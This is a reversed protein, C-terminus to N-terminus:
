QGTSIWELVNDLFKQTKKIVGYGAHVCPDLTTALITGKVNKSDIYIIDGYPRYRLLVEANKPARFLGHFHWQLDEMKLNRLLLHNPATIEYNDLILKGKRSKEYDFLPDRKWWECYPLWPKTVEGFSVLLGGGDLFQVIKEKNKLLMEQNSERPVVIVDYSSLETSSLDCAYIRDNLFIRYKESSFLADQWGTGSYYTGIRVM